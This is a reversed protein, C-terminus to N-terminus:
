AGLQRHCDTSRALFQLPSVVTRQLRAVLHLIILPRQLRLTPQGQAPLIDSMRWLTRRRSPPLCQPPATRTGPAVLLTGSRRWSRPWKACLLLLALICFLLFIAEPTETTWLGYSFDLCFRRQCTEPRWEIRELGVACQVNRTSYKIIDVANQTSAYQKSVM